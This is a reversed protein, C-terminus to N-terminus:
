RKAIADKKAPLAESLASEEYSSKEQPLNCKRQKKRSNVKRSEASKASKRAQKVKASLAEKHPIGEPFPM